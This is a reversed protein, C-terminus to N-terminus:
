ISPDFSEIEKKRKMADSCSTCIKTFDTSQGGCVSCKYTEYIYWRYVDDRAEYGDESRYIASVCHDDVDHQIGFRKFFDVMKKADDDHIVPPFKKSVFVMNKKFEYYARMQVVDDATVDCRSPIRELDNTKICNWVHDLWHLEPEPLKM